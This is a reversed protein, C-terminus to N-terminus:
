QNRNEPDHKALQFGTFLALLLFVIFLISSVINNIELLLFAGIDCLVSALVMLNVADQDSNLIRSLRHYTHNTDGKFIPYGNALRTIVTFTTDFIPVAFLLVPLFWSASQQYGQPNYTMALAATLFGLTQAGSDGLFTKGPISNFYTLGLCTGLLSISVFTIALQNSIASAITLIILTNISIGTVIGERSDILNFSNTIGVLWFITLLINLWENTFINVSNGMLIFITIALCQGFIKIPANLGVFDDWIGFILIIFATAFLEITFNTIIIQKSIFLSLSIAPILSFLIFLGGALPTKQPNTNHKSQLPINILGIKESLKIIKSGFGLVVILSLLFSLLSIATITIPM